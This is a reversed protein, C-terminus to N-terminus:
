CVEEAGLPSAEAEVQGSGFGSEIGLSHLVDSEVSIRVFPVGDITGSERQHELESVLMTGVDLPLINKLLGINDAGLCSHSAGHAKM